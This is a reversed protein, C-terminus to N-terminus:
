IINDPVNATTIDCGLVFGENFRSFKYNIVIPIHDYEYENNFNYIRWFEIDELKINQIHYKRYMARNDSLQKQIRLKEKFFEIDEAIEIYTSNDNKKTLPLLEYTINQNKNELIITGSIMRDFSGKSIIVNEDTQTLYSRLDGIDQKLMGKLNFLTSVTLCFKRNNINLNKTDNSYYFDDFIIYPKLNYINYEKSIYNFIDLNNLDSPIRVGEYLYTNMGDSKAYTVLKEKFRESYLELIDTMFSYMNALYTNNLNKTLKKSFDYSHLLDYVEVTVLTLKISYAQLYEETTKADLIVFNNSLLVKDNELIDIKVIMSYNQLALLIDYPINAFSITHYNHNSNISDKSVEYEDIFIPEINSVNDNEDILQVSIDYSVGAIM